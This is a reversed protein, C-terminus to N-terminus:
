CRLEQIINGHFANKEEPYAQEILHALTIENLRDRQVDDLKRCIQLLSRVFPTKKGAHAVPRKRGEMAEVVEALTIKSPKRALRYGGATGRKSAVLSARNLQLLIQVLFRVSIGHEDAITRILLPDGKDYEKALQVMAICAYETKASFKM